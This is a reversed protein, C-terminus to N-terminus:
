AIRGGDVIDLNAATAIFIAESIDEAAACLANVLATHDTRKAMTESSYSAQVDSAARVTAEWLDHLQKVNYM